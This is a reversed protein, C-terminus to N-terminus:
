KKPRHLHTLALPLLVKAVQFRHFLVCYSISLVGSEVVGDVGVNALIPLNQFVQLWM